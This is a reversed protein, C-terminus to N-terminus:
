IGQRPAGELMVLCDYMGVAEESMWSMEVAVAPGAYVLPPGTQLRSCQRDSAGVVWSALDTQAYPLCHRDSRRSWDVAAFDPYPCAM